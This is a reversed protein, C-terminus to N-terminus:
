YSHSLHVKFSLHLWCDFKRTLSDVVVSTNIVVFRRPRYLTVFAKPILKRRSDLRVPSYHAAQVDREPQDKISIKVVIHFDSSIHCSGLFQFHFLTIQFQFLFHSSAARNQHPGAASM